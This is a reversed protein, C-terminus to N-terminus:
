QSTLHLLLAQEPRLVPLPRGAEGLVRGTLTAGGAELWRPAAAQKTGPGGAVELPEVRYARDPDLGPFRAPGPTEFASATLQVYAFLAEARDTAVVGHLYAAPDPHDARVV